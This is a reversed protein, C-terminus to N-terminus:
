RSAPAERLGAGFRVAKRLVLEQREEDLLLIGFMEYDIM